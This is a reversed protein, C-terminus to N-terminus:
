SKLLAVNLKSSLYLSGAEGWTYKDIQGHFVKSKNIEKERIIEAQM